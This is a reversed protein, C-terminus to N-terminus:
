GEARIGIVSMMRGTRGREARHSFFLDTRCSTCGGVLQISRAKVGAAILQRRNAETLNLHLKADPKGHGPARQNLFMMPYRARVPDDDESEVFLKRAYDFQSEFEALVEEGVEYCCSGIGPGIAAILDEPRSGFELRMRGIGTEVIRKVTGRWGAHFAAVARRKPDAVLVPICDATQVALLIEPESTMVGDAKPPPVRGADGQGAVVVLNSHIQRLLVLPVDARGTIAEALLRRNGIVNGRGDDPTFGLNLELQGHQGRYAGSVGGLRTSCGYWLWRYREWGPIALWHVGNGAIRCSSASVPPGISESPGSCEIRVLCETANAAKRGRTVGRVLGARDLTKDLSSLGSKAVRDNSPPM